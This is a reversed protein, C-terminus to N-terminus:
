FLCFTPKVGLLLCHTFFGLIPRWSNLVLYYFSIKYLNLFEVILCHFPLILSAKLAEEYIDVWGPYPLAIREGPDTVELKFDNPVHYKMKIVKLDESSLISDIRFPGYDMVEREEFKDLSGIGGFDRDKGSPSNSGWSSQFLSSQSM